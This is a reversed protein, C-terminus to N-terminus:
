EEEGGGGGGDGNLHPSYLCMKSKKEKESHTSSFSLDTKIKQEETSM